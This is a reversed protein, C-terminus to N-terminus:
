QAPNGAEDGRGTFLFCAEHIDACRYTILRLLEAKTPVVTTFCLLTHSSDWPVRFWSNSRQRLGVYIVPCVIKAAIITPTDIYKEGRSFYIQTDNNCNSHKQVNDM